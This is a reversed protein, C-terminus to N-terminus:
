SHPFRPRGIATWSPLVPMTPPATGLGPATPPEIWGNHIEIPNRVWRDYTSGHMSRVVEVIAANPLAFFLNATAASLVPGYAGHPM